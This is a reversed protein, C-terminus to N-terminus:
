SSSGQAHRAPILCCRCYHYEKVIEKVISDGMLAKGLEETSITSLEQVIETMFRSYVKGLITSRSQFVHQQTAADGAVLEKEIEKRWTAPSELPKSM